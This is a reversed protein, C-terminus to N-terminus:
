DDNDSGEVMALQRELSRRMRTYNKASQPHKAEAQKNKEILKRLTAASATPKPEDM